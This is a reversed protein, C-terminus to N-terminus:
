GCEVSVVEESGDDIRIATLRGGWVCGTDLSYIDTTKYLGLTSWHGFIIKPTVEQRSSVKFWPKLYQKDKPLTSPSGKQRFDFRKDDSCFRMRTFSALAYRQRDIPPLTPSYESIDKAFMEKLWEKTDGNLARHLEDSAEIAMDLNYSPSIGAHSMCYGLSSDAHIFRASMLWEILEKARPSKIIPDVTPNSKKLGYYIAILTIDHNGLVVEISDKISHLYELTELSGDGRNVVDGAVWLRDQKPNFDIKKLLSKLPKYCGQIDGIAWVM